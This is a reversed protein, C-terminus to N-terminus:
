ATKSIVICKPKDFGFCNFVKEIDVVKLDEIDKYYKTPKKCEDIWTSWLEVEYRVKMNDKFYNILENARKDTCGWNM